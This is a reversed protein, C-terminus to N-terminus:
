PINHIDLQYFTDDTVGVGRKELRQELKNLIANKEDFVEQLQNQRTKIQKYEEELSIFLHIQRGIQLIFFSLIISTMILLSKKYNNKAKNKKKTKDENKNMNVFPM